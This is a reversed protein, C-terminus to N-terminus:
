AQTAPDGDQRAMRLLLSLRALSRGIAEGLYPKTAPTEPALAQLRLGFDAMLPPYSGLEDLIERGLWTRKGQGQPDPMAWCLSYAPLGEKTTVASYSFLRCILPRAPYISCHAEPKDPDYFPCPPSNRPERTRGALEPRHGLIWLAAYDAELPLIDPLFRECCAGCGEPCGLTPLDQGPHALALAQRAGERFASTAAELEAYLDHVAKIPEALSSNVLEPPLIDALAM